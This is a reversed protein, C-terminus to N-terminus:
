GDSVFRFVVDGDERGEELCRVGLSPLEKRWFRIARANDHIARLHWRGAYCRLVLELARTATGTGRSAHILFFEAISLDADEPMYKFPQMGVCVFGVPRGGSTIVHARQFPQAPDQEARGIRLNEPPTASAIWDEVIDPMWRGAEDVEYFDTDFGSIEHVYMPWVNRFFARAEPVCWADVIAIQEEPAL